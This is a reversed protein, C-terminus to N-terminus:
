ARAQAHVYVYQCVKLKCIVDLNFRGADNGVERGEVVNSAVVFYNGSDQRDVNTFTVTSYTLSIDPGSRLPQGDRTWVSSVTDTPFAPPDESIDIPINRSNELVRVM